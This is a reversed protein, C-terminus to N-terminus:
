RGQLTVADDPDLSLSSLKKFGPIGAAIASERVFVYSLQGLGAVGHPVLATQAARRPHPPVAPEPQM